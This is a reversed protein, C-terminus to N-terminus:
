SNEIITGGGLVERGNKGSRASYFVISQGSTVAQRPKGFVAKYIGKKGKAKDVAVSSLPQRYRIRAVAKLPFDPESGSIWSPNEFSVEKSELDKGNKTVVLKNAAFDKKLVYYPGGPLGMGKRQGITYFWLGSHEGILREEGNDELEVIKGPSEKLHKKLFEQVSGSIFCIEQSEPVEKFPFGLKAAMKRVQAKGFGGVPFVIKALQEQGLRHLFYTQDKEEDKSTFLKYKVAKSKREKVEIKVAYHGTALFDAGLVPLRETLLGFKIEKNCVVCPNPTSGKGCVELFNKVVKEKFEKEFDLVCFPIGIIEAVKKARAESEGSCCRSGNLDARCSDGGDSWFKMFVGTVDFGAKKLLAAAVSSDVGGSM